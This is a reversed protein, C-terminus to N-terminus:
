KEIGLRATTGDQYPHKVCRIDSCVDAADVLWAPADRGTLVLELAPPRIEFLSLVEEKEVYQRNVVHVFEDLILLAYRGSLALERVREFGDRTETMMVNIEDPTMNWSFKTSTNVRFVDINDITRAAIVEGTDQSKLFQVVAVRMGRGAARLALGFAATTKGKGHGTYVHILGKM